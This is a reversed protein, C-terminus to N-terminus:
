RLEHLLFNVQLWELQKLATRLAKLLVHVRAWGGPHARILGDGADDADERWSGQCSETVKRGWRLDADRIWADMWHGGFMDLYFCMLDVFTSSKRIIHTWVWVSSQRRHKNKKVRNGEKDEPGTSNTLAASTLTMAASPSEKVTLSSMSNKKEKWLISRNGWSMWTRM